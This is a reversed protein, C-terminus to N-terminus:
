KGFWANKTHNRKWITFEYNIVIHKLNFSFLILSALFTHFTITLYVPSLLIAKTTRLLIQTKLSAEAQKLNCNKIAKRLLYIETYKIELFWLWLIIKEKYYFILLRLHHFNVNNYKLDSGKVFLVLYRKDIFFLTLNCSQSLLKYM